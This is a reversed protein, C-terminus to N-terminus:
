RLSRNYKLRAARRRTTSIQKNNYSSNLALPFSPPPCCYPKPPDDPVIFEILLSGFGLLRIPYIPTPIIDGVQYRNNQYVLYDIGNDIIHGLQQSQGDIIFTITENPSIALWIFTTRLLEKTENIVNINYNYKSTCLFGQNRDGIYGPKVFPSIDTYTIPTGFDVIEGSRWMQLADNLFYEDDPNTAALDYYLDRIVDRTFRQSTGERNEYLFAPVIIDNSPDAIENKYNDENLVDWPFQLMPIFRPLSPITQDSNNFLTPDLNGIGGNSLDLVNNDAGVGFFVGFKPISFVGRPLSSYCNTQSVYPGSVPYNSIVQSNAIMGAGNSSIDDIAYSYCENLLLNSTIPVSSGTVNQQCLGVIGGTTEVPLKGISYCQNITYTGDDRGMYINNIIGGSTLISTASIDGVHFTREIIPPRLSNISLLNITEIIGGSNTCTGKHYSDQIISATFTTNSSRNLIGSSGETIDGISYCKKIVNNGKDDIIFGSSGLAINGEFRCNEFTTNVCISSFGCNRNVLDGRVSCNYIYVSQPGILPTGSKVSFLFYASNFTVNQPFGYSTCDLFVNKIESVSDIQATFLEFIMPDGGDNIRSIINGAGNFYFTNNGSNNINFYFTNILSIDGDIQVKNYQPLTIPLSSMINDIYQQNIILTEDGICTFTIINTSM